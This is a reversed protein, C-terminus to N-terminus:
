DMDFFDKREVIQIKKIFEEWLNQLHQQNMNNKRICHNIKNHFDYRVLKIRKSPVSEKEIEEIIEIAEKESDIENYNSKLKNIDNSKLYEYKISELWHDAKMYDLYENKLSDLDFKKFNEVRNIIEIEVNLVELLLDIFIPNSYNYFNIKDNYKLEVQRQALTSIPHSYNSYYDPNYKIIEDMEDSSIKTTDFTVYYDYSECSYKKTLEQSFVKYSFLISILIIGTQFNRM